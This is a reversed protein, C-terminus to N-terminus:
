GGRGPCCLRAACWGGTTWSRRGRGTTCRGRFVDTVRKGVVEGLLLRGNPNVDTVQDDLGVILVGARVRELVTESAVRQVQLARGAAALSEALQGSLVGVLILSLVRSGAEWYALLPDEGVGDSLLAM